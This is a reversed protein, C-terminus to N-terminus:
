TIKRYAFTNVFASATTPVVDSHALMFELLACHLAYRRKPDVLYWRHHLPRHIDGNGVFRAFEYSHFLYIIPAGTVRAETLLTRFLAKMFSLGFLYLVGSVLPVVLSSLPVVLLPVTGHRYPSSTSPHYPMRPATLWGLHAGRCTLLDLRQPCVSFDAEYGLEVLVGQTVASTAM